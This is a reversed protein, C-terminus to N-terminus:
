FLVRLYFIFKLLFKETYYYLITNRMWSHFITQINNNELNVTYAALITNM